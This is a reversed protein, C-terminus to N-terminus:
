VLVTYGTMSVVEQDTAPPAASFELTMATNDSGEINLGTVIIRAATNIPALATAWIITGTSAAGDRLYLFIVGGTVPGVASAVISTCVHKFGAGGAAKTITALTSVAPIHNVSWNVPPRIILNGSADGNAPMESGVGNHLYILTGM